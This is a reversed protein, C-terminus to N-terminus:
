MTILAVAILAAIAFLGLVIAVAIGPVSPGEWPEPGPEEIRLLQRAAPLAFEPVLVECRASMQQYAHSGVTRVICPVGETRLMDGLMDAEAENMAVVVCRMAGGRQQTALAPDFVDDHDFPVERQLETDFPADEFFGAGDFPKHRVPPHSGDAALLPLDCAPCATAGQEFRAGCFPCNIDQFDQM